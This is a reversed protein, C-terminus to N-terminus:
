GALSPDDESESRRREDGAGQAAEIFAVVGARVPASLSPWAAIVNALDEPTGNDHAACASNEGNDGHLAPVNSEWQPYSQKAFAGTKLPKQTKQGHAKRGNGAKAPPQQAQNQAARDTDGIAKAFHDDNVRLYHKRAVQESNGIWACVVHSPFTEELETQRTARLNHFLKPWPEFGAREIIKCMTTRLNAGADRYRTIVYESGEPAAELGERLIPYLEPFIPLQRSAKGEHHETKPSHVTIRNTGWDIDGWRLALHESPCRLGGWRSLAFILKWEIDPCKDIVKAAMDATIYFERDADSARVHTKLDIFPNAQIMRKRVAFKLFQKARGCIRRVTNLGLAKRKNDGATRPRLLYRWFEDADGESIDSLSRDPGFFEVLEKRAAKLNIITRPKANTRDVIYNDIFAALSHTTFTRPKALGVAAIRQHMDDSRESLWQSIVPDPAHGLHAATALLEINGKFKQADSLSAKGIRVTKRKGDAAIFLIRKRGGSDNGITAM